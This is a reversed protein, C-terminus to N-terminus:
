SNAPPTGAALRTELERVRAELEELRARTRELVKRQAEFEDRGTLDLKALNARLVARFNQEIDQRLHAVGQPLGKLLGSLLDEVPNSRVEIAGPAGAHASNIGVTRQARWNPAVRLALAPQNTLRGGAAVRAAPM